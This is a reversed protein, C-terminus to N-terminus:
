PSSDAAASCVIFVLRGKTITDSQIRDPVFVSAFYRPTLTAFIQWIEGKGFTIGGGCRCRPSVFSVHRLGFLLRRKSFVLHINHCFPMNRTMTECRLIASRVETSNSLDCPIGFFVRPFEPHRNAGFVVRFRRGVMFLGKARGLRPVVRGYMNAAHM